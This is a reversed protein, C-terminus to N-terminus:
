VSGEGTIQFLNMINFDGGPDFRFFGNYIGPYYYGRGFVSGTSIDIIKGDHVRSLHDFGRFAPEDGPTPFTPKPYFYTTLNVVYDFGAQHEYLCSLTVSRLKNEVIPSELYAAPGSTLSEGYSMSAIVGLYNLWRGWWTQGYPTLYEPHAYGCEQLAAGWVPDGAYSGGPSPPFPLNKTGMCQALGIASQLDVVTGPIGTESYERFYYYLRKGFEDWSFPVSDVVESFQRGEVGLVTFYYPLKLVAGPLSVPHSVLSVNLENLGEVLNM